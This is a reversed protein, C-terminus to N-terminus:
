ESKEEQITPLKKPANMKVVAEIVSKLKQLEVFITASEQLSYAGMKQGKELGSVIVSYSNVIEESTLQKQM